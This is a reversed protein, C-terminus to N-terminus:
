SIRRSTHHMIDSFIM